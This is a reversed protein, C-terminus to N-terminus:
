RDDEDEIPEFQIGNDDIYPETHDFKNALIISPIEKFAFCQKAKIRHKCNNCQSFTAEEKNGIFKSAM